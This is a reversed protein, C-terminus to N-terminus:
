RQMYAKYETLRDDLLGKEREVFAAISEIQFIWLDEQEFLVRCVEEDPCFNHSAKGNEFNFTIGILDRKGGDYGEEPIPDGDYTTQGEIDISTVGHLWTDEIMINKGRVGELAKKVKDINYKGLEFEM